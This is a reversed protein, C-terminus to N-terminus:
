GKMFIQDFESDSPATVGSGNNAELAEVRESLVTLLETNRKVDATLRQDSEGLIGHMTALAKRAETDVVPGSPAAVYDRSGRDAARLAAGFQDIASPAATATANDRQSQVHQRLVRRCYGSLNDGDIDALKQLESKLDPELRIGTPAIQAM